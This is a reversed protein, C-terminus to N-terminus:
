VRDELAKELALIRRELEFLEKKFRLKDVKEYTEYQEMTLANDRGLGKLVHQLDQKMRWMADYLLRVQKQVPEGASYEPLEVDMTRFNSAM